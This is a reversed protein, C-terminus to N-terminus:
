GESSHPDRAPESKSAITLSACAGDEASATAASNPGTFVHQRIAPETTSM